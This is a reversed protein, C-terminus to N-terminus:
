LSTSRKTVVKADVVAKFKADLSAYFTQITSVNSQVTLLFQFLVSTTSKMSNRKAETKYNLRVAIKICVSLNQHYDHLHRPKM